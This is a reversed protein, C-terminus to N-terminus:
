LRRALAAAGLLGSRANTVVRVPIAAVIPSLRGKDCYARAFGGAALAPLIQPAIGGCVYVGGTALIQLALNGAEQGYVECFLELAAECLADDRALGRRTVVAAPHPADHMETRVAEVEPAHGSDRLFEYVSVIGRGSLVREYSVRKGLTRRLHRLLGIQRETTPAFDTHGGESALVQYSGGVKSLFAEGLGTGAGLVAIPGDPDAVGPHLTAFDGPPLVLVAMAQAHFDNVLTTRGLGTAAALAAGDIEWPLNTAKCRNEAVPGAIAFCASPQPSAALAGSAEALFARVIDDFRPYARSDYRHEVLVAGADDVVACLAKTGGIDGCLVNM